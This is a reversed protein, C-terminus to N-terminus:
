DSHVSTLAAQFAAKVQDITLAGHATGGMRNFQLEFGYESDIYYLRDQQSVDWAQDPVSSIHFFASEQRVLRGLLNGQRLWQGMVLMTQNDEEIYDIERKVRKDEEWILAMRGTRM